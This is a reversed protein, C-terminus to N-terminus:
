TNNPRRSLEKGPVKNLFKIKFRLCAYLVRKKSWGIVMTLMSRNVSSYNYGLKKNCSKCIQVKKIDINERYEKKWEPHKKM